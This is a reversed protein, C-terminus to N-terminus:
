LPWTHAPKAPNHTTPSLPAPTVLYGTIITFKARRHASYAYNSRAQSGLRQNQLGLHFPEVESFIFNNLASKCGLEAEKLVIHPQIQNSCFIAEFPTVQFHDTPRGQNPYGYAGEFSIINRNM